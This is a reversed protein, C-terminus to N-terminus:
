SVGWGVDIGARGSAVHKSKASTDVCFSHMIATLEDAIRVAQDPSRPHKRSEKNLNGVLKSAVM